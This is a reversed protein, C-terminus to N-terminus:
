DRRHVPLRFIVYEEESCNMALGREKLRRCLCDLLGELPDNKREISFGKWAMFGGTVMCDEFEAEPSQVAIEETDDLCVGVDSAVTELLRFYDEASWICVIAQQLDAEQLDETAIYLQYDGIEIEELAGESAVQYAAREMTAILGELRELVQAAIADMKLSVDESVMSVKYQLSIQSLYQTL